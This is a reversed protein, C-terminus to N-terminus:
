RGMIYHLSLSRCSRTNLMDCSGNGSINLPNLWTVTAMILCNVSEHNWALSEVPIRVVLDTLVVGGKVQKM